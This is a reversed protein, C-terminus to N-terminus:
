SQACQVGQQHGPHQAGSEDDSDYAERNEIYEKQAQAQDFNSLEYKELSDKDGQSINAPQPLAMKLANMQIESFSNKEPYKIDFKIILNGKEYPNEHIPMGEDKLMKCSGQKLIDKTSVILKRGDLHKIIFESGCLAESLLIPKTMFLHQGKREYVSHPKQNIIIIIDGTIGGPLQNGQERFKIKHGSKMGKEINVHIIKSELTMKVSYGNGGCQSCKAQVQQIMGPGIRRMQNIIGNGDCQKCETAKENKNLQANCKVSLKSTKSNYFSELDVSLKHVIDEGKKQEKHSNSRGGFMHSFIDETQANGGNGGVGEKGYKDYQSKKNSDSLIEYAESIQKFEEANGGRDPHSKMAKKRFAKKIENESADKNVGLLNYLESTDINSPQRMQSPFGGGMFHEFPIGHGGGFMTTILLKLLCNRLVKKIYIYFNINIYLIYLYELIM